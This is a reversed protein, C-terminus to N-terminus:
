STLRHGPMSLTFVVERGPERIEARMQGGHRAVRSQVTALDLDNWDASARCHARVVLRVQEADLSLHAHVTGGRESSVIACALLRSVVHTLDRPDAPIIVSMAACRTHLSVDRERAVPALAETTSRVLDVLDVRSSRQVTEGLREAERLEDLMEANLRADRELVRFVDDFRALDRADTRLPMMLRKGTAQAALRLRQVLAAFLMPQSDPSRGVSVSPRVSTVVM